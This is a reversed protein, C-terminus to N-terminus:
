VETSLYAIILHCLVYKAQERPAHMVLHCGKSIRCKVTMDSCAVGQSYCSSILAYKYKISTLNIGLVFALLRGSIIHLFLYQEIVARPSHLCQPPPHGYCYRTTALPVLQAHQLRLNTRHWSNVTPVVEAHHLFYMLLAFQKVNHVLEVSDCICHLASHCPRVAYSGISCDICATSSTQGTKNQATGRACLKCVAM